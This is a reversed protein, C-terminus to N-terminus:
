LGFPFILSEHAYVDDEFDRRNSDKGGDNACDKFVAALLVNCGQYAKGGNNYAQQHNQIQYTVQKHSYAL